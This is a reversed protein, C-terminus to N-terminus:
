FTIHVFVGTRDSTIFVDGKEGYLLKIRKYVNSLGIHNGNKEQLKMKQTIEDIREDSLYTGTNQVEIHFKENKKIRLYIKRIETNSGGHVFCNEIVPQLIFRPIIEEELCEEYEWQYEMSNGYRIEMMDMYNKLFEMENKLKWTFDPNRLIPM